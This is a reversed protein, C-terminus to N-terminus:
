PNQPIKVLVKIAGSNKDKAIEFAHSIDDLLFRHTILKKPEIEKRVIWDIITEFESKSRYEGYCISGVLNLEKSILPRLQTTVELSYGGSLVITGGRRCCQIAFSLAEGSVATSVIADPEDVLKRSADKMSFFVHNCGFQKAVAAQHPYRALIDVRKIGTKKACILTALGITGSGIIFLNCVSHNIKHLAHLGVALPEVLAGSEDDIIDPLRHLCVEPVIAIESFGSTGNNPMYERDVCLNYRGETCFSCHGCHTFAEVCVRDGIHFGSTNKGTFIIKGCFEHGPPNIPQDRVGTYMLLDSGCIGVCKVKVLVEKPTCNSLAM